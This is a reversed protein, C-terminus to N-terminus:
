RTLQPDKPNLQHALPQMHDVSVGFYDYFYDQRLTAEATKITKYTSDVLRIYYAQWTAFDYLGNYQSSTLQHQMFLHKLNFYLWQSQDLFIFNNVMLQDSLTQLEPKYELRHEYPIQWGQKKLCALLVSQEPHFQFHYEPLPDEFLNRLEPNQLFYSTLTEEPFLPLDFLTNLDETLGFHAWNSPHFYVPFTKKNPTLSKRAYITPNLIFDKFVSFEPNRKTPKQENWFALFDDNVFLMDSRLKLTYPRTAAQIGRQSSVIEQNLHSKLKKSIPNLLTSSPDPSLCIKDAILGEIDSGEWTSLILEANPFLDKLAELVNQTIGGKLQHRQGGIKSPVPKRVVAGQVVISIDTDTVYPRNNM